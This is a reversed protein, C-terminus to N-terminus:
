SASADTGGHAAPVRAYAATLREATVGRERYPDFALGMVASEIDMGRQDIRPGTGRAAGYRPPPSPLHYAPEPGVGHEWRWTGTDTM